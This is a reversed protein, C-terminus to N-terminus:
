WDFRESEVRVVDEATGSDPNCLVDLVRRLLEHERPDPLQGDALAVEIIGGAYTEIGACLRERIRDDTEVQEAPSRQAHLADEQTPSAEM